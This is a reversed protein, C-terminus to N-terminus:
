VWEEERIGRVASVLFLLALAAMCALYSAAAGMLGGRRVMERCLFFAGATCLLYVRFISKQRKLIVLVYYLLNLLAYFGGGLIVLLLPGKLSALAKGAEPGVLLALAPIGFLAAAALGLLTLGGILLAIKRIGSVFGARDGAEKRASLETLVPRIVFNAMLNIVSTPIFVTTYYGSEAHTMFRNVAYKSAAFIYLDLFASLFLWLSEQFLGPLFGPRVRRDVGRLELLPLFDFLLIGAAQCLVAAVCAPVLRRTLLMCLLFGGASVLTRFANSKGALYLRGQRQFECDPCDAMGDLVKYSAMLLLVQRAEGGESLLLGYGLSVLMALMATLFRFRWYEGYTFRGATDTIQVPRMGFYSVIFMQQGFTSFAFFFIGGADAGLARTVAAGLLMSTLAYIGSGFLNWLWNREKIRRDGGYLLRNWFLRPAPAAAQDAATPAAQAAAAAAPVKATEPSLM